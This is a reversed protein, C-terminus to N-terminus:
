SLWNLTRICMNLNYLILIIVYIGIRKIDEMYLYIKINIMVTLNQATDNYM